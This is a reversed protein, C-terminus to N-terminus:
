ANKVKASIKREAVKKVKSGCWICQKNDEDTTHIVSFPGCKPCKYDAIRGKITKM